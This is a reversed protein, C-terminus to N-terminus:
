DADVTAPAGRAAEDNAHAQAQSGVRLLAGGVAAALAAFLAGALFALQYGGNLAELASEGSAEPQRHTVGRRQGARRPRARRGDHVVHQRRGVRAGRGRPEVDSM